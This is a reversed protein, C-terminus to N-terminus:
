KGAQRKVTKLVVPLTSYGDLALTKATNDINIKGTLSAKGEGDGKATLHLEILTFQYDTATASGAPKWLGNWSGLRRDTVLVVRESNDPQAVRYAYRISYGASESTWVYGVTPAAQLAALLSSEPTRVVEPAPAADGGRGGRGGGGGGRGGRGGGAANGGRGGRGADAAAPAAGNDAAPAAAEPTAGRGGAAAPAAGGAQPAAGAEPAPAAGGRGGGRGGRGGGGGAAPPAGANPNEATAAGNETAAGRGAGRGGAAPAAAGRAGPAPATMNWAALFQDREADTSWRLLDIRIADGSGTVNESTATFRMIPGTPAQAIAIAGATLVGVLVLALAHSMRITKAQM